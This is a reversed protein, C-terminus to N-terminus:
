QKILKRVTTGKESYIKIIYFGRTLDNLQISKFDSNIVIEKQGLINFIEVKEIPIKSDIILKDSVPNPYLNLGEALIENDVGLYASCDESYTATDDKQWSDYPAIGNNADTENDVQICSLNPNNTASFSTIISNNSNDVDLKILQNSSCNLSTLVINQTIDLETLKNDYCLLVKLNPNTSVDLISLQNDRCNLYTLATANTLDLNTLRNNLYCLIEEININNSLDLNVLYYNYICYLVRLSYLKTLDLTTLLNNGCNLYELNINKNLNINTIQNASFDLITLKTNKDVNLNKILNSSCNFNSLNLNSGLNLNSIDNGTCDFHELKLNQSTNINELKNFSCILTKLNPIHDVNLYRLRNGSCNLYKLNINKSIDIPLSLLDWDSSHSFNLIELNTNKELNLYLLSNKQCYLETLSIFDEIGKLDNIWNDSVDLSIINSIDSTAVSDNVVGDKDIGLNILAQEFYDDPVYTKQANINLFIFAFVLFFYNKLMPCTISSSSSSLILFDLILYNHSIDTKIFKVWLINFYLSKFAEKKLFVLCFISSM